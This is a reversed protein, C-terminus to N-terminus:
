SNDTFGVSAKKINTLQLYLATLFSRGVPFPAITTDGATATVEGNWIVTGGAGADGTGNATAMNAGSTSGTLPEDDTYLAAGSCVILSMTGAADGGAWTGSDTTYSVLTGVRGSTAGTITEGITPTTTGGSDYDLTVPTGDLLQAVGANSGDSVLTVDWLKGPNSTIQANATQVSSQVKNVAM